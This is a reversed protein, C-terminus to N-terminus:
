LYPVTKSVFTKVAESTNTLQHHKVVTM